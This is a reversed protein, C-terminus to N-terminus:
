NDLTSVTKRAAETKIGKDFGSNFHPLDLTKLSWMYSKLPMFTGLAYSYLSNAGTDRGMLRSLNCELKM